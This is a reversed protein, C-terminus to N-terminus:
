AGWFGRRVSRVAEATVFAQPDVDQVIKIAQHAQKRLVSLNIFSVMGDRGQASIETVGFGRRRLVEALEAGRRPSIVRLHTYGIALREEIWMGIVMGTAFGAAYGIIKGWDGIDSLVVRLATIFVFSQAFGFLWAQPKRGRVVMKIRLTYLSIDVMRLLFVLLASQIFALSYPDM